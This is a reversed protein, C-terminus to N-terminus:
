GSRQALLAAGYAAEDHAAGTVPVGLLRARLKTWAPNNAGGGATTVSKLPTAGLEALRAYGAAEIRSLGQLLGHLFQVDDAPHPTLRPALQPDNIPFREGSKPLPYYDFPSDTAPDIQTSLEALQNDSFYQRLVGGGANSAGGALWLDGYRHSYVGYQAAEVRRQSLLKLVLTTGLSTVATGPENVGTAIVAAISDTTGAHVPCAPNLKFHQAVASSIQAIITGPVGVQPLLHAYPLRLVWDPWCLHEVDYGTKLANHYDSMGGIGTLLAALWDAQHMFYAANTADCHRTLWLFKALGSTASCVTHGPPAIHVLGAAERSARSDSYLLTPMVPELEDDCLLVTGSTAAIAIGQLQAAVPAPLRRLLTLLAERWDLPTQAAADPYAIRDQHVIAGSADLVCARAGTTGFDFGLYFAPHTPSSRSINKSETEKSKAEKPVVGKSKAASREPRVPTNPNVSHEPHVPSGLYVSLSPASQLPHLSKGRPEGLGNTSLTPSPTGSTPANSQTRQHRHKGRGLKNIEQWDGQMLAEKKKRSWGKLQMEASLAEERTACEQSWALEVPRRDRTYGDCTGTQHEGMRKELFDTHGTYYSGDACRLIYVWFPKM